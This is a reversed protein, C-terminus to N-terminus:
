PQALAAAAATVAAPRTLRGTANLHRLAQAYALVSIMIDPDAGLLGAQRVRRSLMAYESGRAAASLPRRSADSQSVPPVQV